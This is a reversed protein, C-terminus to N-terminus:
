DGSDLVVGSALFQKKSKLKRGYQRLLANKGAANAAAAAAAAAAARRESATALEAAEDDLVEGYM